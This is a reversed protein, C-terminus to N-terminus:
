LFGSLPHPLTLSPDFSAALNAKVVSSAGSGLSSRSAPSEGLLGPFFSNSHIRNHLGLSSCASTGPAPHCMSARPSLAPLRPEAQEEEAAGEWGPWREPRGARRRGEM